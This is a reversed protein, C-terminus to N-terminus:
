DAFAVFCVDSSHSTIYHQIDSASYSSTGNLQPCYELAAADGTAIGSHMLLLRCRKAGEMYSLLM